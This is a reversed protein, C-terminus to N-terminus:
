PYNINKISEWSCVSDKESSQVLRGQFIDYKLVKPNRNSYIVIFLGTRRIMPNKVFIVVPEMQPAPAARANM